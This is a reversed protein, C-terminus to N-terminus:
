VFRRQRNNQKGDTIQKVAKVWKSKPSTWCNGDKRIFDCLSSVAVIVVVVVVLFFFGSGSGSGNEHKSLLSKRKREGETGLVITRSREGCTRKM